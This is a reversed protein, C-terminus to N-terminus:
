LQVEVKIIKNNQRISRIKYNKSIYRKIGDINANAYHVVVTNNKYTFKKLQGNTHSKFNILYEFLKRNKIYNKDIKSYQKLVSKTQIMSSPLNYTTKLLENKNEYQLIDEKISFGKFFIMMSFVIILSSMIYADKTSIYKSSKNISIKEIKLDLNNLDVDTSELDKSISSPINVLIEDKYIYKQDDIKLVENKTYKLFVNQAFYINEVKKFEIGIDNLTDLIVSENYAFCLYQNDKIKKISYMYEDIDFFEEFLNPVIKLVEKKSTIPIDFIRVWYYNPSLIINFSTANSEEAITDKQLFITKTM